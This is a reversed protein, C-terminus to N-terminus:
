FRASLVLEFAREEGPFYRENGFAFDARKAYREDTLNRIIGTLEAGAGIERGIRLDLTDHGEYFVTNAANMAYRGVHQASLEGRWPGPPTWRLAIHALSKPATDVPDGSDITESANGVVRDFRYRHEAYTGSAFLSFSEGLPMDLDGEIGVHSTKGDTVNFGDADRFFVQRKEIAFGTIRVLGGAGIPLAVGLEASDM